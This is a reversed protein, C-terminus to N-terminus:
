RGGPLLVTSAGPQLTVRYVRYAEAEVGNRARVIRGIRDASAWAAPDPPESRRETALLVGIRGAGPPLRTFAWRPEAGLVPVGGMGFALLAAAGYNESAAFDAGYQRRFAELDRTVGDWGGLRILTPDLRRPLAFPAANAIYADIRPDTKM